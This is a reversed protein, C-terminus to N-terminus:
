SGQQEKDKIHRKTRANKLAEKMAKVAMEACHLKVNPLGLVNSVDLASLKEADELTKNEVMECIIDSSAIAAACGFTKFAAEKIKKKEKDLKLRIIVIDGCIPSGVKGEADFNDLDKCHKPNKFRKMVEESYM